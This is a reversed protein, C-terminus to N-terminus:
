LIFCSLLECVKIEEQPPTLMRTDASFRMSHSIGYRLSTAMEQCSAFYELDSDSTKGTNNLSLHTLKPWM